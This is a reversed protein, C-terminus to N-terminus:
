KGTIKEATDQRRQILSLEIPEFTIAGTWCFKACQPDGDCQDCKFALGKLPNFNAHGFPCAQVCQRCGICRQEDVTVLGTERNRIMAAVPCVSVCMPKECMACSIPVNWGARENKAIRIRSLNQACVGEHVLSCIMECTKCGVCKNYDIVLIENM